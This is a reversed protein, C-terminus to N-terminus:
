NATADNQDGKQNVHLDIAPSLRGSKMGSRKPVRAGVRRRKRHEILKVSEPGPYQRKFERMMALSSIHKGLQADLRSEVDIAHDISDLSHASAFIKEADDLNEVREIIPRLATIQKELAQLKKELRKTNRGSYKKQTAAQEGVGSATESLKAVGAEFLNKVHEKETVLKSLHRRISRLGKKGSEQVDRAFPTQYFALQVSRNARHKRWRLIAMDYVIEEELVGMTKFESRIGEWLKNFEDESEWPLIIDSAYVGHILANQALKLTM